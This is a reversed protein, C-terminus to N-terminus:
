DTQALSIILSDCFLDEHFKMDSHYMNSIIDLLFHFKIGLVYKGYNVHNEPYHTHTCKM